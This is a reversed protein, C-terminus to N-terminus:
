EMEKEMFVDYGWPREVRDTLRYGMRAYFSIAWSAKGVTLLRLRRIGIETARRELHTILATGIGQRQYGPLIYLWRIRGVGETEVHFAVVGVIMNERKYVYFEMRELDQWLEALSLVPERFHPRPMISKFATRNSANIVSLIENANEPGAQQIV